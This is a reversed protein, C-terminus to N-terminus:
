GVAELGRLTGTSSGFHDTEVGIRQLMTVFLNSLPPHNQEDFALHQGHKFGGGAFLVPMNKVSHGAANGLNSSFFVMTRDLLSADEERTQKLQAFFDRLTNLKAIELTKLQAIKAPDQGHHSLDHHGQSVGPIPPVGSTGLLQLTILRTSDTQLALHILDFWVRTKGVLDTSNM